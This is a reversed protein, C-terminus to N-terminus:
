VYRCIGFLGQNPPTANTPAYINLNLYDENGVATTGQLQPCINGFNAASRVGSWPAVTAPLRWRGPGAPSAAYPIGKYVCNNGVQVGAVIGSDIAVQCAVSNSTVQASAPPAFVLAVVLSLCFAVTAFWACIHKKMDGGERGMEVLLPLRQKKM